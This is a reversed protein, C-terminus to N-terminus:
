MKVIVDDIMVQTTEDSATKKNNYGGITLTHSGVALSGLNVTYFQWGTAISSGGNGDGTVRAFHANTGSGLTGLYQGDVTAILESYEDSEYNSSQTLNARFSLTVTGSTPLTFTTRWGGSMGNITNGNVGGLNVVVGGGSFGGTSSYAGSAYTPQATSRFADDVYTFGNSDTDFPASLATIGTLYDVLAAYAPKPALATDFLLPAGLGPFKSAAWAYTDVLGWTFYNSCNNSSLCARMAGTFYDAQQSLEAPTIGDSTKITGDIETIFVEVGINKYRNISALIEAEPPPGVREGSLDFHMQFGVCDIPTGAAKLRQVLEYFRDSKEQWGLSTWVPGNGEIWYENLCLKVNPPTVERAWQFALRLHEERDASMSSFSYDRVNYPSAFELPENVVTVAHLLGPYKTTFHTLVTQIHNKMVRRIEDSGEYRLNRLWPVYQEDDSYILPQLFVKQGNAVAFDSMEDSPGFDFRDKTGQIMGFVNVNTPTIVDCETASLARYAPDSRFPEVTVECGFKINRNRAAYKLAQPSPTPTVAATSTSLQLPQNRLFLLAATGAVLIMLGAIITTISKVSMFSM